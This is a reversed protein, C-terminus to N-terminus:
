GITTLGVILASAGSALIILSLLRQLRATSIRLHLRGGILYGALLGLLCYGTTAAAIHVRGYSPLLTLVTIVDLGLFLVALSDRIATFALGRAQLWLALPPGNVGISTSLAGALVGVAARGGRVHAPRRPAADRARGLRALTLAIVVVGVGIQLASKPLSRLLLLGCVSGPVASILILRLEEWVLHPRGDRIFLVLLNVAFSLGTLLVIASTPTLAVLLVPSLVLAFGMGTTAQVCASLAVALAILAGSM